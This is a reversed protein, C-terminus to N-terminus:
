DAVRNLYSKQMRLLFDMGRIRNKKKINNEREKRSPGSPMAFLQLALGLESPHTLCYPGM